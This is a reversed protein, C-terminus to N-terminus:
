KKWIEARENILISVVTILTYIITIPISIVLIMILICFCVIILISELVLGVYSKSKQFINKSKAM